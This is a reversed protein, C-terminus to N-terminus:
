KQSSGTVSNTVVPFTPKTHRKPTSPSNSPLSIAKLRNKGPGGRVPVIQYLRLGLGTAIGIICGACHVTIPPTHVTFLVANYLVLNWEVIDVCLVALLIAFSSIKFNTKSIVISKFQM